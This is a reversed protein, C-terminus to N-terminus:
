RSLDRGHVFESEECGWEARLKRTAAEDLRVYREFKEYAGETELHELLFARLAEPSATLLLPNEEDSRWLHALAEPNSDLHEYLWDEDFVTADLTNPSFEVRMFSYTPLAFLLEDEKATLILFQAKGLDALAARFPLIECDGSFFAVQYWGDDDVQTVVFLETESGEEVWSGLLGPELILEDDPVLSYISPAPLSCGIMSVTSFLL